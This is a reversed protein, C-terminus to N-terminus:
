DTQTYLVVYLVVIITVINSYEYYLVVLLQPGRVAQELFVPYSVFQLTREACCNISRLRLM